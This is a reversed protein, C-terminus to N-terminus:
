RVRCGRAEGTFGRVMTDANAQEMALYTAAPSGAPGLTDGYLTYDARAGTERALAQALRKNVSSEPFVARVHERGITSALREVAGASPQAETSQSPIVTGVVTIDYRQAFYGFADHDTVLKRQTAPVSAFCRAISADLARLRREYAAARAAYAPRGAPDARTLADRIALVAREANRPDHWWHPDYRGGEGAQGPRRVPTNAPAITLVAPHGGSQEIVKGMWADLGDGSLVVLRAAATAGVDDPRPEYEHPDTNPSLIQHVDVRDGGVARVFDGLQTTSAVVDLRGDNDSSTAACGNILLALAATAALAAATHPRPFPRPM